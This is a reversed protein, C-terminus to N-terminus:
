GRYLSRLAERLIADPSSDLGTKEAAAAAAKQAEAQKYGLSILALVADAQQPSQEPHLRRAEWAGTIGVKDRLELAIREATKKGLGSIKALTDIQHNVVAHKFEEVAMGSLISLALKPGVGSVRTILLRFLDREAETLFGFLSHERENVNLHTLLTVQQGPTTLQDSTSLPVRLDYGVGQVDVIAQGPLSSALTGRLYAFM